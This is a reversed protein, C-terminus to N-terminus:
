KAGKQLNCSPCLAQGNQTTTAGGKSFPVVHDAHFNDKLKVGCSACTGGAVWALIRRQRKSFLRNM